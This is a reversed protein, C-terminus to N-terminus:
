ASCTSLVVTDIAVGILCTKTISLQVERDPVNVRILVIVPLVGVPVPVHVHRQLHVNHTFM